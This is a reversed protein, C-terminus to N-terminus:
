LERKGEFPSTSSDPDGKKLVVSKHGWPHIVKKLLTEHPLTTTLAKEMRNRM